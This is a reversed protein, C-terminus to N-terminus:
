SVKLTTEGSEEQVSQTRWPPDTALTSLQQGSPRPNLWLWLPRMESTAFHYLGMYQAIDPCMLFVGSLQFKQLGGSRHRENNYRLKPIRFGM